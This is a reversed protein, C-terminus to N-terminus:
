QEEYDASIILILLWLWRKVGDICTYWVGTKSHDEMTNLIKLFSEHWVVQKFNVYGPKGAEGADEAVQSHYSKSDPKLIGIAFLEILHERSTVM